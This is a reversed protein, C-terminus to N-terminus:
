SAGPLLEGACVNIYVILVAGDGDRRMKKPRNTRKCLRNTYATSSSHWKEGTGTRSVLDWWSCGDDSKAKNDIEEMNGTIAASQNARM